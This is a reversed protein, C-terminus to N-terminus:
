MCHYKILGEIPSQQISSIEIGFQQAVANIENAFYYAVSGVLSLKYNQYSPYLCIQEEFFSLFVKQLLDKVFENEKHKYAFPAFSALFRNPFPHKYLNDIFYSKDGPYDKAFEANLEAPMTHRLYAKLLLKGIHNGSGEDCLIYGLAPINQIIYGGSYLCSNSGTGLIGVIGSGNGCSGICAGLMDTDVKINTAPFIKELLQQITEKGKNTGCGAGYFFIEELPENSNTTQSLLQMTITRCDEDTIFNPNMGSTYITKVEMSRAIFCWLTKTSGSDAIAIM